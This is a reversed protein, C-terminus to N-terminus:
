VTLVGEHGVKDMAEAIIRGIGDDGNASVTAVQQIAKSTKCPM